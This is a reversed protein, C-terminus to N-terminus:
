FPCDDDSLLGDAISNDRIFHHCHDCIYNFSQREFQYTPGTVKKAINCEGCLINRDYVTVKQIINVLKNIDINYYNCIHCIHELQNNFQALSGEFYDQCIMLECNTLTSHKVYHLKM